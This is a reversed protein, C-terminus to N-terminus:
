LEATYIYQQPIARAGARVAREGRRVGGDARLRRRSQKARERELAKEWRYVAEKWLGLQAVEIGFVIQKKADDEREDAALASEPALSLTLLALVTAFSKRQSSM